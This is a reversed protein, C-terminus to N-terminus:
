TAPVTVIWAAVIRMVASRKVIEQKYAKKLAKRESKAFLAGEAEERAKTALASLDLEVEALGGTLDALVPERAAAVKTEVDCLDLLMSAMQETSYTTVGAEEVADVIAGVQRENGASVILFVDTIALPVSVDFAVPDSGLKDSAAEAALRTLRIAHDTATM